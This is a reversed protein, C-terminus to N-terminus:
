INDRPNCSFLASYIVHHCRFGSSNEPRDWVLVKGYAHDFGLYDRLVDCTQLKNRIYLTM